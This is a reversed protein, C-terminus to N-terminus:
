DGSRQLSSPQGACVDGTLGLSPDLSSIRVLLASKQRQPEGLLMELGEVMPSTSAATTAYQVLFVCPVRRM